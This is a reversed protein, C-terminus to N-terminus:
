LMKSSIGIAKAIAYPLVTKLCPSNLKSVIVYCKDVNQNGLSSIILTKHTKDSGYNLLGQTMIEIDICHM